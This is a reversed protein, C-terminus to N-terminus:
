VGWDRGPDGVWVHVRPGAQAGLGVTAGWAVAVDRNAGGRAVGTDGPSGAGGGGAHVGLGRQAM